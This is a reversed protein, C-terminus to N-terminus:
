GGNKDAAERRQEHQEDSADQQSPCCQTAAINLRASIQAARSATTTVAAGDQVREPVVSVQVNASPVNRLWAHVRSISAAALEPVKVTGTYTVSMLTDTAPPGPPGEVMKSWGGAGRPGAWITVAESGTSGPSTSSIKTPERPTAELPLEPPAPPVTAAPEGHPGPADHASSASVRVPRLRHRCHRSRCRRNRRSRRPPHRIKNLSRTSRRCSARSRPRPLLSPTQKAVTHTTQQKM